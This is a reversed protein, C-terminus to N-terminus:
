RANMPGTRSLAPSRWVQQPACINSGQNTIFARLLLDASKKSV